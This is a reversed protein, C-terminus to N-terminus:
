AIESSADRSQERGEKKPFGGKRKGDRHIRM